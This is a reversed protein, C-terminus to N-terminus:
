LPAGLDARMLFVSSKGKQPTFTDRSVVAWRLHAFAEGTSTLGFGRSIHALSGSDLRIYSGHQLSCAYNGPEAPLGNGVCLTATLSPFCSRIPPSPAVAAMQTGIEGSPSKRSFAPALASNACVQCLEFDWASTQALRGRRLECRSWGINAMWFGVGGHGRDVLDERRRGM